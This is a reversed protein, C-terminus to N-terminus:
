EISHGSSSKDIQMAKEKLSKARHRLYFLIAIGFSIKLDRELIDGIEEGENYLYISMVVAIVALLIIGIAHIDRVLKNL